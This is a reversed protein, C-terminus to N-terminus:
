ACDQMLPPNVEMDLWMLLTLLDYRGGDSKIRGEDTLKGLHHQSLGLIKAALSAPLLKRRLCNYHWNPLAELFRSLYTAKEQEDDIAMLAKTQGSESMKELVDALRAVQETLDYIIPATEM